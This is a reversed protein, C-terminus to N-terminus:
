GRLARFALSIAVQIGLYIGAAISARKVTMGCTASIAFGACVAGVALGIFFLGPPLLANILAAPVIAALVALIMNGWGPFEDQEMGAVILGLIGAGVLLGIM